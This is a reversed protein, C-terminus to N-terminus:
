TTLNYTELDKAFPYIDQIEKIMWENKSIFLTCSGDWAVMEIEALPHQITVPNTWFGTYGDAYPLPYKMVNDRLINKPFGSIVGWIWQFNDTCLIEKLEEGSLWVCDGRMKKFFEQKQPYCEPYSILWNYKVSLEYINEFIEGFYSNNKDENLMIGNM